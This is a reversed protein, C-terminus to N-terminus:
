ALPPEPPTFKELAAILDPLDNIATDWVVGADIEFYNHVIKHRMGAIRAWAIEPHAAATAASIRSAAEGIIQILHGVIIKLDENTEFQERSIGALKARARKAYDLMDGLYLLESRKSM